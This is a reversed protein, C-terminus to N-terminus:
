QEPKLLGSTTADVLAPWTNVDPASVRQQRTAGTTQIVQEIESAPVYSVFSSKSDIASPLMKTLEVTTAMDQMADFSAARPDKSLSQGYIAWVSSLDTQDAMKTEFRTVAGGSADLLQVEIYWQDNRLFPKSVLVATQFAGYVSEHAVRTRLEPLSALIQQTRNEQVAIREGTSFAWAVAAIVSPILVALILLEVWKEKFWEGM